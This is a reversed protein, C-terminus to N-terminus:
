LLKKLGDRLGSNDDKPKSSLGYPDQLTSSPRYGTYGYGTFGTAWQAANQAQANFSAM